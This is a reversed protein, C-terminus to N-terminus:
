NVTGFGNFPWFRFVAKGVVTSEPVAGIYRCDRSRNRNDGLLFVYGEPVDISSIAASELPPSMIEPLYEEDLKEGDVYVANNSYDIEVHQGGTAIVRKVWYIRNFMNKNENEAIPPAFIVIDGQTCEYGLRWVILRDNHSLTNDMSHGDVRVVTFLFTRILAAVAIALVIAGVWELIERGVTKKVSIAAAAVSANEVNAEDVPKDLNENTNENTNENLNESM